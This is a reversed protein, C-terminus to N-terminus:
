GSCQSPDLYINFSGRTVRTPFSFSSYGYTVGYPPEHAVQFEYTSAGAYLYTWQLSRIIDKMKKPTAIVGLHFENGSEPNSCGTEWCFSDTRSTGYEYMNLAPHLFLYCRTYSTCAVRITLGVWFSNQDHDFFECRTSMWHPGSGGKCQPELTPSCGYFTQWIAPCALNRNTNPCQIGPLSAVGNVHLMYTATTSKALGNISVDYTFTEPCGPYNSTGCGNFPVGDLDTYQTISSDLRHIKRYEMSASDTRTFFERAGIYYANPTFTSVAPITSGVQLTVGDVSRLIGHIPLSRITVTLSRQGNTDYGTLYIPIPSTSFTRFSGDYEFGESECGNMGLSTSVIDGQYCTRLPTNIAATISYFSLSEGEAGDRVKFSFAVSGFSVSVPDSYLPNTKMCFRFGGSSPGVWTDPPVASSSSCTGTAPDVYFISARADSTTGAFFVATLPMFTNPNNTVRARFGSRDGNADVKFDDLDTISITFIYSEGIRLSPLVLNASTPLDQVDKICISGTIDIPSFCNRDSTLQQSTHECVSDSVAFLFTTLPLTCPLDTRAQSFTNQDSQVFVFSTTIPFPTNLTSPSLAGTLPGRIIMARSIADGDADYCSASYFSFVTSIRQIGEINFRDCSPLNNPLRASHLARVQDSSLQINFWSAFYVEGKFGTTEPARTGAIRLASSPSYVFSAFEHSDDECMVMDENINGVYLRVNNGYSRTGNVTLVIHQPVLTSTPFRITCAKDFYVTHVGRAASSAFRLEFTGASSLLLQFHINNSSVGITSKDYMRGGLEVLSSQEGRQQIAAWLEVSFSTSQPLVSGLESSIIQNSSSLSNVFVGTKNPNCVFNTATLTLPGNFADLFVGNPCETQKFAFAVVPQPLQMRTAFLAPTDPFLGHAVSVLFVLTLISLM